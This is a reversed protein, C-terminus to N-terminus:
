RVTSKIVGYGLNEITNEIDEIQTKSDDFEVKVKSANFLVKVHDEGVGDLNKVATDIKELCSPCTLTELQLTGRKM